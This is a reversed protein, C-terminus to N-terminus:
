PFTHLDTQLIQLHIGPSLPNNQLIIQMSGQGDPLRAKVPVVPWAKRKSGLQPSWYPCPGRKM